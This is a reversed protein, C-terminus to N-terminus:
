CLGVIYSGDDGNKAQLFIVGYVSNNIMLWIFVYVGSAPATFIGTVHNYGNGVNTIPVDY